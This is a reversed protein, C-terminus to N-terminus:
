GPTFSIRSSAVSFRLPEEAALRLVQNDPKGPEPVVEIESLESGDPRFPTWSDLGNEFDGNVVENARLSCPAILAMLSIALMTKKLNPRLSKQKMM